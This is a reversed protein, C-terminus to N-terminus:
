IHLDGKVQRGIEETVNQIQQIQTQTSTKIERRCNTAATSLLILFLVQIEKPFILVFPSSLSGTQRM